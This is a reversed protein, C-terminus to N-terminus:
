DENLGVLTKLYPVRSEDDRNLTKFRMLWMSAESLQNLRRGDDVEHTMQELMSILSTVNIEKKVLALRLAAEGIIAYGKVDDQFLVTIGGQYSKSLRM